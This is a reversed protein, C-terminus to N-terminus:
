TVSIPFTNDKLRRIFSTLRTRLRTKYRLNIWFCNSFLYNVYGSGPISVGRVERALWFDRYENGYYSLTDILDIESLHRKALVHNSVFQDESLYEDVHDYLTSFKDMNMSSSFFWFDLLGTDRAPNLWNSVYFKDRMFYDFKLDTFFVVDFRSVMVWEYVFNNELEHQRKLEISKKSSYWRSRTSHLKTSSSDFMIPKEFLSRRPDYMEILNERADVSWTHIFVDVDNKGLIHKKYHQFAIEANVPDGKDNKGIAIGHLCLATKMMNQGIKALSLFYGGRRNRCESSLSIGM